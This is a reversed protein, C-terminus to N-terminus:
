KTSCLPASSELLKNRFTLLGCVHYSLVWFQQRIWQEGYNKLFGAHVKDIFQSFPEPSPGTIERWFPLFTSSEAVRSKTVVGTSLDCLVDWLEGSKDPKCSCFSILEQSTGKWSPNTVGIIYGKVGLFMESGYNVFPFVRDRLIGTIPSVLLCTSYVLLNGRHCQTIIILNTGHKCIDWVPVDFGLFVIRKELLVAHFIDMVQHHFRDLLLQISADAIEEPEFHLPLTHYFQDNDVKTSIVVNRDV